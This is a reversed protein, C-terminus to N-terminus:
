ARPHHQSHLQHLRQSAVHTYIQTTSLDSHGLLMQVVRLNAGHNVLHTAFAHRLGHPSLSLPINAKKAYHKIRYWFAQRTLPQGARGPFVVDSGDYSGTLLQGLLQERADAFYHKLWRTAEDGMPVLREKAGKGIVRVVGQRLNINTMKLTVLESVRLGSAYMLELMAKDRSEIPLAVDPADLLAEIQQESLAHPLRRGLKPPSLQLTPDSAIDGNRLLYRYFGKYSSVARAQTRPSVSRSALQSLCQLLDGASADVVSVGNKQLHKSLAVLDRRYADLTNRSLGRELWVADLYRDISQEAPTHDLM